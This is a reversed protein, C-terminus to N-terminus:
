KKLAHGVEGTSDGALVFLMLSTKDVATSILRVGKIEALHKM